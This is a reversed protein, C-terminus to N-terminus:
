ENTDFLNSYKILIYLSYICGLTHLIFYLDLIINMGLLKNYLLVNMVYIYLNYSHVKTGFKTLKKM